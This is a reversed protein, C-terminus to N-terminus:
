QAARRKVRCCQLVTLSLRSQVEMGSSSSSLKRGKSLLTVRSLNVSIVASIDYYVHSNLLVHTHKNVTNTHPKTNVPQQQQLQKM